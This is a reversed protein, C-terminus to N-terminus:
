TWGYSGICVRGLIDIGALILGFLM